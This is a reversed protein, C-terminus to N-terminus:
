GKIETLIEELVEVVGPIDGPPDPIVSFRKGHALWNRYNVIAELRALLEDDLGGDKLIDKVDRLNRLDGPNQIDVWRKKIFGAAYPQFPCGDKALAKEFKPNLLIDKM